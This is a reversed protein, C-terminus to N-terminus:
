KLLGERCAARLAMAMKYIAQSVQDVKLSKAVEGTTVQDRMWRIALLQVSKPVERHNAM